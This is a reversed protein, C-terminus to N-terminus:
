AVSGDAKAKADHLFTTLSDVSRFAWALKKTYKVRIGLVRAVRPVVRVMRLSDQPEKDGREKLHAELESVSCRRVDALAKVVENRVANRTM